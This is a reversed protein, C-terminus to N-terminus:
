APLAIFTQATLRGAPPDRTVAGSAALAQLAPLADAARYVTERLTWERLQGVPTPGATALHELLARRLPGVNPRLSIDLLTGDPDHPDRYRIGAYEDLAWLEDKFKELVAATSTAFVVREARGAADVLDVACALGPPVPPPRDLPGALLVHADRGIGPPLETAGDLWAFVPGGTWPPRAPVRVPDVTEVSVGAPPGAAALEAAVAATGTSAGFLVITLPARDLRDAFEAFVRLAAVADAASGPASTVGHVYTVRRHRHLAAPAWADLSRVLLEQKVSEHGV